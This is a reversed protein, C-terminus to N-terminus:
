KSKPSSWPIFTMGGVEEYRCVSREAEDASIGLSSAVKKVLGKHPKAPTLEHIMTFYRVRADSLSNFAGISLSDIPSYHNLIEKRIRMEDFGLKELRRAYDVATEDASLPSPVSDIM